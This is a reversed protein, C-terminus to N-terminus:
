NPGSKFLNFKTTLLQSFSWLFVKLYRVSIGFNGAEKLLIEVFFFFIMSILKEKKYFVVCNNHCKFFILWVNALLDLGTM